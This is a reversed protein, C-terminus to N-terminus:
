YRRKLAFIDGGPHNLDHIELDGKEESGGDLRMVARARDVNRFDRFFYMFELIQLALHM